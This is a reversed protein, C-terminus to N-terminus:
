KPPNENFYNRIGIFTNKWGTKCADYFDDAAADAPFGTQEVRLTCGKEAEMISFITIADDSFKFPLQGSKAHYEGYKMTLRRPPDFELLTASSVYDPDDEDGWAAAWIGGKKPLVIAQTAGWWKCIASPTVLIGFMGEPTVDFLEEHIHSRTKLKASRELSESVVMETM